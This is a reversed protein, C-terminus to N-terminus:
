KRREKELLEWYKAYISFRSAASAAIMIFTHTGGLFGLRFFYRKIFDAAPEFWMKFLVAARSHKKQEFKENAVLTSYLNMRELYDSLDDYSYHELRNKLRGTKGEVITDDHLGRAPNLRAKSKRFLRLTYGHGWGPLKRGFYYTYRPVYYGNIDSGSNIIRIIEERLEPTVIEDADLTLVWENSTQNISYERQDRNITWKRQIVKDTYKRCVDVTKDTSFSDVIVIEDAWTISKLVPEIKDEENMCMIAISLKETM